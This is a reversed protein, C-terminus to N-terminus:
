TRCAAWKLLEVEDFFFYEPKGKVNITWIGTGIQEQIEVEQPKCHHIKAVDEMAHKLHKLCEELEEVEPM